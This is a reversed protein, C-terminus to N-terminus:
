RSDPTHITHSRLTNHPPFPLTPHVAFPLLTHCPSETIAVNSPADNALFEPTLMLCLLTEATVIDEATREAARVVLLEWVPGM